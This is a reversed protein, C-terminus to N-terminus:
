LLRQFDPDSKFTSLIRESSQLADIERYLVRSRELEEDTPLEIEDQFSQLQKRIEEFSRIGVGNKDRHERERVRAVADLLPMKLYLLINKAGYGAALQYVHERSYRFRNNDDKLVSWGEDLYYRTLAEQIIYAKYYDQNPDEPLKRFAIHDSRLHVAPIFSQLGQTLTSKGAGPIGVFSVLIPIALKHSPLLLENKLEAYIRKFETSEPYDSM